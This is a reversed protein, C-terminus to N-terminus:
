TTAGYVECWWRWLKRRQDDTMAKGKDSGERNM